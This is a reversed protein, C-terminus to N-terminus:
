DELEHRHIQIFKDFLVLEAPKGGVKDTDECSLYQVRKRYQIFRPDDMTIKLRFVYQQSLLYCTAVHLTKQYVTNVSGCRRKGNTPLRSDGVILTM